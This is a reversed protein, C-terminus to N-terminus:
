EMPERYPDVPKTKESANPSDSSAASISSLASTPSPKGRDIEPHGVALNPAPYVKKMAERIASFVRDNVEDSINKAKESSIQLRSAIESSFKEPRLTGTLCETVADLLDEIKDIHLEHQRGIEQLANIVEESSLTKQIESPLGAFQKALAADSDQDSASFQQPNM